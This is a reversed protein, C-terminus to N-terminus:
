RNLASYAVLDQIVTMYLKFIMYLLISCNLFKSYIVKIFYPHLPFYKQFKFIYINSSIENCTNYNSNSSEINDLLLLYDCHSHLMCAHIFPISTYCTYTDTQHSHTQITHSWFFFVWFNFFCAFVFNEYCIWNINIELFFTKSRTQCLNCKYVHHIYVYYCGM